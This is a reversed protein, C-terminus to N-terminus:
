LQREEDVPVGAIERDTVIIVAELEEAAPVIVPEADLGADEVEVKRAPHDAAAAVLRDEAVGRAGQQFIAEEDKELGVVGDQRQRLVLDQEQRLRVAE